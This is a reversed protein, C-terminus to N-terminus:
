STKELERMVSVLVEVSSLPLANYLSARYGGVSRHGKIGHVGAEQSLATFKNELEKNKIQFAVNMMSRDRKNSVNAEFLPNRDIESYLLDAKAKNLKAIIPVGGQNKLWELNLMSTYVSFVPPTNFMSEKDILNQYDLISPIVRSVKGLINEKVVVLTTGAPGINKQAGAYILDFQSHDIERSYIDSSMDVVLPANGKPFSQMQTGAITNNSTYHIYDLDGDISKIDPIYNYNKDASSGLEVIEGFNRAEKIANAAWRGTNLFGAKNELLNYAVMVFQFSAGGQLFLAQYGKNELGLLELALSRANEMVAVFADSRHSIELISLGSNDFDLIAQSAKTYVEQPLICPGAGFNHKKM